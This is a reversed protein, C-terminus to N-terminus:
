SGWVYWGGAGDMQHGTSNQQVLESATGITVIRPRRYREGGAARPASEPVKPSILERETMKGEIHGM